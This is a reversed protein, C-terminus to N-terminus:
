AHQALMWEYLEPSDYAATWVDHEADPYVTLRADNGLARLADIMRKSEYLPVIPDRGGHFAWVPLHAIRSALYPSGGGCIPAIAAFLHPYTIATAWTGFGGMSLGTGYIRTADVRCTSVVRELIAALEDPHWWADAPCCPTVVVFPFEAGAAMRKPPGHKRAKEADGREGKGHLYLVVPWRGEDRDYDKPLDLWYDLTVKRAITEDFRLLQQAM